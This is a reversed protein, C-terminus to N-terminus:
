GYKRRPFEHVHQGSVGCFRCYPKMQLDFICNQAWMIVTTCWAPLMTSPTDDMNKQKKRSL